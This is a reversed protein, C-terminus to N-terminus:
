RKKTFYNILPRVGFAAAIATGVAVLYWEPAQDLSVFGGAIYPQFWPIFVLIVPASLVITWYEDKWGSNRIQELEWEAERTALVAAAEAKAKQHAIEGRLKELKIENKLKQREKFYEAIEEPLGGLLKSVIAEWM